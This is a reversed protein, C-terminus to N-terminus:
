AVAPPHGSGCEGALNGKRPRYVLSKGVEKGFLDTAARPGPHAEPNREAVALRDPAYIGHALSLRGAADTRCQLQQIRFRDQRGFEEVDATPDGPIVDGRQSEHKPRREGGTQEGFAGVFRVSSPENALDKPEAPMQGRELLPLPDEPAGQSLPLRELRQFLQAPGGGEHLQFALAEAARNQSAEHLTAHGVQRLLAHLAIGEPIQFGRGLRSVLWGGLLSADDFEQGAHELSRCGSRRKQSANGAGALRQHVNPQDLSRELASPARDEEHRLDRERGLGNLAETGGEAVGDSHQMGPQRGSLAEVCPLGQPFPALADRDSRPGRDERGDAIEPHDDEVLLVLTAVLLRLRGPIVRPGHGGDSALSLGREAQQPRGGGGQLAPTVRVRPSVGEELKRLPNGIVREGIDPQDIDAGALRRPRVASRRRGSGSPWSQRGRQALRDFRAEVLALLADHKQVPATEGSENLALVASLDPATLVAVDREGVMAPLPAEDAVVAAEPFLWRNVAILALGADGVRSDARLLHLLPEALGERGGPDRPHIQVRRGGLPRVEPDELSHTLSLHVDEESGLHDRLSEVERLDSQDPDDVRVDAEIQRIEARALARELKERLHRSSGSPAGLGAFDEDM